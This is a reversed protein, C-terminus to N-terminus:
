NIITFYLPLEALSPLDEVVLGRQLNALDRERMKNPSIKPFPVDWDFESITKLSVVALFRTEM